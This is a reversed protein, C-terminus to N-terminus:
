EVIEDAAVQLTLPVTLGLTKATVLNIILEFKRPVQVPLVGPNEGKLVRDVYSASRAFLDVNDPGYGLLGGERAYSGGPFITPLKHAAALKMTERRHVANFSDTMVVLGGGAEGAVGAMVREIDASDRARAVITKVGLKVGAAEFSPMFYEGGGPATEPNFLIAAHSISPAVEKLLELWKGGMAAEVNIFGTINGAPRSLSTIFGAGVPDSVINFVIPVTTTERKLAATAPTSNSLIVDPKLAVLESAFQKIRGVEARTWRVEIQLNRGDTWGADVLGQRFAAFMRQAHQDDESYGMLVGVRRVRDAQQARVTVPWAVAAGGVLTIFERRRV